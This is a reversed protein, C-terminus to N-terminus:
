RARTSGFRNRICCRLLVSALTFALISLGVTAYFYTPFSGAEEGPPDIHFQLIASAVPGGEWSARVRTLYVDKDLRMQRITEATEWEYIGTGSLKEVMVDSFIPNGDSNYVDISVDAGSVTDMTITDTILASIRIPVSEMLAYDHEGTLEISLLRKRFIATLVHDADITIVYPDADGAQVGDLEWYDLM